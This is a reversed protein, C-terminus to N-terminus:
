DNILRGEKRARQICVKFDDLAFRLWLKWNYNSNTLAKELCHLASDAFFESDM